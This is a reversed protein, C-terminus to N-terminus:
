RLSQLNMIVKKQAKIAQVSQFKVEKYFVNNKMEILMAKNWMMRKSIEKSSNILTKKTLMVVVM